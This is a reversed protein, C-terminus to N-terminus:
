KLWNRYHHYWTYPNKVLPWDNLTDRKDIRKKKQNAM